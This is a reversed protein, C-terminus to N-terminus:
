ERKFKTKKKKKSQQREIFGRSRNWRKSLFFFFRTFGLVYKVEINQVPIECNEFSPFVVCLGGFIARYSFLQFYLVTKSTAGDFYEYPQTFNYLRFM